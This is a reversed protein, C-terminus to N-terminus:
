SLVNSNIEELQSIKKIIRRLIEKQKISIQFPVSMISTWFNREWDSMHQSYLNYIEELYAAQGPSKLAKKPKSSSAAVKNVESKYPKIFSGTQKFGSHWNIPKFRNFRDKAM